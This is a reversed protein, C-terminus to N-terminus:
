DIARAAYKDAQRVRGLESEIFRLVELKLETAPAPTEILLIGNRFDAQGPREIPKTRYFTSAAKVRVQRHLLELAKLINEAPNINSGVAIFAEATM